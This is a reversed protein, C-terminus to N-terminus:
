AWFVQKGENYWGDLRETTADEIAGRKIKMTPTLFGNAITWDDSVIAIFQLREHHEVESNVKSFLGKIESEIKAKVSSDGLKGRLDEAVVVQAYPQPYGSGSVCSAEVNPDNNIINEIPAPAVYKGKSTKFIEKVRGTIKLLGNSKREGRDGTHFFGDETYCEATMAEEKYYGQMNGASKILIEGADSLRVEVGPYPVGVYGPETFEPTSLHSYAFDESMAYGELLMLGLDRYWEILEAPIPASGSGALRVSDLGLGKLIKKRLLKGIIPIKFAFDLKKKPMKSFVGQQFKLWLRPVSIFLTPRCRQLDQQFTDLAEAFFVHTVGVISCCEVYAREFVHALPLYSLQRENLTIDLSGVMGEVATAIRGFAHMVGKPQGTSGSTYIILATEDVGRSVNETIPATKAIIDDWKDYSNAPALSFAVLPMSEPVGKKIEEWEDLKGVFLLKADSHDLVYSATAANVTPYLAVTTYGAMWIALESIMFHACNKSCIGIKSGPEFGLSKLYAAMKRAEGVAESWTYSKVAGGGLPQTLWDKSAHKTENEYVYDLLQKTNSM